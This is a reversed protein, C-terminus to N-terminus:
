IGECLKYPTTGLREALKFIHSTSIGACDGHEIRNLYRESIGTKESLEKITMNVKERNKKVNRGFIKLVKLFEEDQVNVVKRQVELPFYLM